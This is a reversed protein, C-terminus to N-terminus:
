ARMCMGWALFINFLHPRYELFVDKIVGSAEMDMLGIKMVASGSKYIMFAGVEEISDLPFPDCKQDNESCLLIQKETTNIVTYQTDDTYIERCEGPECLMSTEKMCIIEEAYETTTLIVKIYV